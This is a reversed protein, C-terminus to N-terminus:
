THKCQTFTHAFLALLRFCSNINLVTYFAKKLPLIRQFCFKSIPETNKLNTYPYLKYSDSIQIYQIGVYM